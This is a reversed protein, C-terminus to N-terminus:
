EAPHVRARPAAGFAQALSRYAKLPREFASAFAFCMALTLGLLWLDYGPLAEPLTADLLHLTPYHVVYISFTAGAIWRIARGAAGEPRDQAARYLAAAGILHVSVAMAILTNWLFEDSYLLVGHHSQPAFAIATLNSLLTDIGQMKAWVVFAPGILALMWATSASLSRGSKVVHWVGVGMLWAPFLLLIPLGALVIIAAAIIWKLPGRIFMAAGFIAYYAVEYSLSWIPGNTGLRVPDMVGLWQPTLTLGRFLFEGLPVDQYYVPPYAIMDIRTGIADFILTLVLAPVIVTMIRSIRNFAYRGLTGDREAAYAIVVGSMVFFVVVADSAVNWERLVYFDGRTFRIHAMHGFLVTFAAFVRIVDLWLSFGRTM